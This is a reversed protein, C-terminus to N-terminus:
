GLLFLTNLLFYTSAFVVAFGSIREKKWRLIFVRM